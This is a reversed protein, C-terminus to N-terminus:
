WIRVLYPISLAFSPKPMKILSSVSLSGYMANILLSAIWSLSSKSVAFINILSYLFVCLFTYATLVKINKSKRALTITNCTNRELLSILHGPSTNGIMANRKLKRYGRFITAGGSPPAALYM